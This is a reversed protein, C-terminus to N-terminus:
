VWINVRLISYILSSSSDDLESASGFWEMEVAVPVCVADLIKSKELGGGGGDDRGTGEVM